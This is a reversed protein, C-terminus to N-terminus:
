AWPNEEVRRYITGASYQTIDNSVLKEAMAENNDHV